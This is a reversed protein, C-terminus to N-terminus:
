EKAMFYENNYDKSMLYKNNYNKRMFYEYFLQEMNYVKSM